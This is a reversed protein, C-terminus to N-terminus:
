PRAEHTEPRKWVIGDFRRGSARAMAQAMRQMRILATVKEGIPVRSWDRRAQTKRELAKTLTTNV